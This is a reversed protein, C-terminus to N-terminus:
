FKSFFYYHKIIMFYGLQFYILNIIFIIILIDFNLLCNSTIFFLRYNQLPVVQFNYIVDIILNFVVIAIM